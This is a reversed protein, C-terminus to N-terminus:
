DEEIRVNIVSAWNFLGMGENVEEIFGTQIKEKCENLKAKAQTLTLDLYEFNPEYTTYYGGDVYSEVIVTYKKEKKTNNFFGM